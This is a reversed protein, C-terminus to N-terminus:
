QAAVFRTPRLEQATLTIGNEIQQAVALVTAEDHLRGTVTACAPQRHEAADNMITPLVVTPHGTLNTIGLDDGGLYLDVQEFVTAMQQMLKSRVRAAHLYDVASLFHLKRFIQPWRNLSEEEGDVVLKHFITAAEADLMLSISWEHLDRPLEVPLIKAGREKLVALAAANASSTESDVVHGIRLQSLDVQAPWQYWRDVTVPDGPDAGHIASLVLGCDEVSRAMPGIKDMTWSLAMCGARSVRGFTPRLATIGCRVSPSVISGLTESGLAFPVLGAAVASASGASSGSSGQEPNWPNRTQGGFWRDGMALAGLTLKAVLVAGSDELKQAVTATRNLQRQQFQIAGWTTPYNPISILDKAGWPIGHLPGRDRGAALEQDALTAQRLALEETLNVVCHLVPDHARLRQLCRETLEVSTTKGSRLLAGLQRISLFDPVTEAGADTQVETTSSLWAPRQTSLHRAQPSLFMEPDFRVAPLEDYDVEITRLQDRKQLVGQVAAATATRQEETLKIGAIWEAQEIMEATIALQDQAQQAVARHFTATGLGLTGLIKLVERRVPRSAVPEPCDSSSPPTSSM